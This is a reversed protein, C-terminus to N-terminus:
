FTLDMEQITLAWRALKGSPRSSDLISLCAIHDTYVVCPHGLLYYRFYWVALVLGLTELESIGYYKEHEDLSRSAYAIPHVMGDEQMQSLIAGLGMTSADTELLFAKGPGFAPYALVPILLQKLQAFAAECQTPYLRVKETKMPDPRIDDASIVHGLFQVEECLLSCKEPKLLLHASQLRSLVECLHQLHEDFTRSAIVIDDIYVFCSRWELGALVRQM